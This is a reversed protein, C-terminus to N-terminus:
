RAMSYRSRKTMAWRRLPLSGTKDPPSRLRSAKARASAVLGRASNSSSGNLVRSLFVLSFLLRSNRANHSSSSILTRSMMWERALAFGRPCSMM